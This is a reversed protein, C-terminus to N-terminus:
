FHNLFLLLSPFISVQVMAVGDSGQRPRRAAAPPAEPMGRAEDLAARIVVGCWENMNTGLDACHRALENRVRGPLFIHTEVTAGDPYIKARNAM